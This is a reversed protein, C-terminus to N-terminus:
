AGPINHKRREYYEGRSPILLILANVTSKTRKTSFSGSSGIMLCLQCWRFICNNTVTRRNFLPQHRVQKKMFIELYTDVAWKLESAANHQADVHFGMVSDCIIDLTCNALLPAM